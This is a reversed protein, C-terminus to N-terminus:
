NKTCWILYNRVVEGVTNDQYFVKDKKFFDVIKNELPTTPRTIKRRYNRKPSCEECYVMGTNDEQIPTTKRHIYTFICGNVRVIECQLTEGDFIIFYVYKINGKCYKYPLHPYLNFEWEGSTIMSLKPNNFAYYKECALKKGGKEEGDCYEVAVRLDSDGYTYVDIAGKKQKKINVLGMENFYPCYINITNGCMYIKVTSKDRIITSLINMFKVFEQPLYNERALFEDFLIKNIKPFSVSKYHEESSIAFGYCFPEDMKYELKGESDYKALFWKQSYYNISNFKGKTLKEVLGLAIITGFMEQGKRRFDEEMRRIIAFQEKFDSEIYCQLLYSLVATTKGNGRKGFIINYDCNESNIKELSYYKRKM